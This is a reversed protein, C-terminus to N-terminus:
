EKAHHPHLGHLHRDLNAEAAKEPIVTNGFSNMGNMNGTSIANKVAMQEVVVEKEPSLTGEAAAQTPLKTNGHEDMGQKNTTM